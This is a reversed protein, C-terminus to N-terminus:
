VNTSLRYVGDAIEHINTHMVTDHEERRDDEEPTTGGILLPPGGGDRGPGAPHPPRRSRVPQDPATRGDEAAQVPRGREGAEVTRARDAEAGGAGPQPRRPGRALRAGRVRGPGETAHAGGRRAADPPQTAGAPRVGPRRVVGRVGTALSGARGLGGP